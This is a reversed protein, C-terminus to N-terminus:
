FPDLKVLACPTHRLITASTRAQTFVARKPHLMVGSQLRASRLAQPARWLYSPSIQFERYVIDKLILHNILVRFTIYCLLHMSAKGVALLPEKLRSVKKLLDLLM